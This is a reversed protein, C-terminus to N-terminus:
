NMQYIPMIDNSFKAAYIKPMRNLAHNRISSLVILKSIVEHDVSLFCDQKEPHLRIQGLLNEMSRVFKAMRTISREKRPDLLTPCCDNDAHLQLIAALYHM